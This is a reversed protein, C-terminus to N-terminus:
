WCRLAPLHKDVLVRPGRRSTKYCTVLLLKVMFFINTNECSYLSEPIVKQLVLLLSIDDDADDDIARGGTIPDYLM